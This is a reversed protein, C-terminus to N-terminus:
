DDSHFRGFAQAILPFFTMWQWIEFPNVVMKGAQTGCSFAVLTEAQDQESCDPHMQRCVLSAIGHLCKGFKKKGRSSNDHAQPVPRNGFSTLHKVYRCLFSDVKGCSETQHVSVDAFTLIHKVTAVYAPAKNDQFFNLSDVNADVFM